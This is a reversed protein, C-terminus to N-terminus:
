RGIDPRLGCSRWFIFLNIFMSAFLRSCCITSRNNTTLATRTSQFLLWLNSNSVALIVEFKCVSVADSSKTLVWFPVSAACVLTSSKRVLSSLCINGAWAFDIVSKPTFIERAVWTLLETISDSFFMTVSTLSLMTWSVTRTLTKEYWSWHYWTAPILSLLECRSLIWVVSVRVCTTKLPSLSFGQSQINEGLFSWCLTLTDLGLAVILYLLKIWICFGHVLYKYTSRCQCQESQNFVIRLILIVVRYNCRSLFRISYDCKIFRLYPPM